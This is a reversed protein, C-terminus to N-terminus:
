CGSAHINFYIQIYHEDVIDYARVILHLSYSNLTEAICSREGSSIYKEEITDLQESDIPSELATIRNVNPLCLILRDDSYVQLMRLVDKKM